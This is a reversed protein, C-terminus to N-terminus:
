LGLLSLALPPTRFRTQYLIFIMIYVIDHHISYGKRTERSSLVYFERHTVPRDAIFITQFIFIIFISHERKTERRTKMKLKPKSNSGLVGIGGVLISSLMLGQYKCAEHRDCHVGFVGPFIRVSDLPCIVSTCACLDHNQSLSLLHRSGFLRCLGYFDGHSTRCVDYM